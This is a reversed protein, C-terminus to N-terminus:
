VNFAAWQGTPRNSAFRRTAQERTRVDELRRLWASRGPLFPLFRISDPSRRYPGRKWEAWGVPPGGRKKIMQYLLGEPERSNSDFRTQRKRRQGSEFNYNM